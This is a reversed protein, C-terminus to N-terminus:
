LFLYETEYLCGTVEFETDFFRVELITDLSFFYFYFDFLLHISPLSTPLLLLISPSLM